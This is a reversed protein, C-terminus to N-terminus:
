PQPTSPNSVLLPRNERTSLQKVGQKASDKSVLSPLSKELVDDSVHKLHRNPLARLKTAVGMSQNRGGAEAQTIVLGEPCQFRPPPRPTMLGPAGEVHM